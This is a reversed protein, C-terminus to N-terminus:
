QCKLGRKVTLNTKPVGCTAGKFFLVGINYDIIDPDDPEVGAAEVM